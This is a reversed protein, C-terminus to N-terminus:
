LTQNATFYIAMVDVFQMGAGVNCKLKWYNKM